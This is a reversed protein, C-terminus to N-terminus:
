RKATSIPISKEMRAGKVAFPGIKWEASVVWPGASRAPANWDQLCDFTCTYQFEEHSVLVGRSDRITLTPVQPYKGEPTTAAYASNGFRDRLRVLFELERPDPKPDEVPHDTQYM